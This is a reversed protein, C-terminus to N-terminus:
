TKEPTSSGNAPKPGSLQRKLSEELQELAQESLQTLQMRPTEPLGLLQQLVQIRGMRIGEETGKGRGADFGRQEAMRAEAVLDAHDREGKQRELYRQHEIDSQSVKMLVEVARRIVPVNLTAPLRDPDLSAGHRFFYLWRELPTRVQEASLDFKSLELLHVEQDKCLLVGDEDSPRFTHHIRSGPLLSGDLLCISYTPLLQEYRDGQVLQGAHGVAWYFLLRKDLAPRVLRQMELLFQRGPDDRARVDFVPVKGEISEGPVFPNLLTVGTVRRGAPFDIVANLLDVLLPANDEDGLLRKFSYDV